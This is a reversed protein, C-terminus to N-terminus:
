ETIEWLAKVGNNLLFLIGEGISPELPSIIVSGFIVLSTYGLALRIRSGLFFALVALSFFVTGYGILLAQTVLFDHM